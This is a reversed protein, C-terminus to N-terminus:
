KRKYTWLDPLHHRHERIFASAEASDSSEFGSVMFKSGQFKYARCTIEPTRAAMQTIFKRANEETSFVGVVVYNMGSTMEGIETSTPAPKNETAPAPTETAPATAPASTEIAAVVEEAPETTNSPVSDVAEVKVTEAKQAVVQPAPEPRMNVFWWAGGAVVVLAVAALGIWLGRLSRQRHLVVPAVSMPNLLHELEESPTFFDEEIRGVGEIVVAHGQKVRRLWRRYAEEGEERTCGAEAILMDLLTRGEERSSFRFM